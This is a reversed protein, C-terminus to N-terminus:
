PGSPLRRLRIDGHGTEIEIRAGGSGVRGWLQHPQRQQQALPLETSLDGSRTAAYIEFNASPPLLLEVDGLGTRIEWYAGAAPAGTVTVDGLGTRLRLDGGAQRVRIDGTGTRVTVNGAIGILHVDGAGGAIRVAGNVHELRIDGHGGHLEVTGSLDRGQVDASGASVDVDGDVQELEVRGVGGRVRVPGALQQVVVTGAGLEVHLETRAPAEIRYDVRLRRTPLEGELEGLRVLNGQQWIPPHAELQEALREASQWPLPSVSFHGFVHLQEAAGRHVEVRGVGGTVELILPEGVTLTREFSGQAAPLACGTGVAAALVGLAGTVRARRM